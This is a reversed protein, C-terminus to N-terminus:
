ECRLNMLILLKTKKQFKLLKLFFDCFTHTFNCSIYTYKIGRLLIPM